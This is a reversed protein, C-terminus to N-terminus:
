MALKHRILLTGFAGIVFLGITTPEPIVEVKLNDYTATAGGASYNALALENFTFGSIVNSGSAIVTAGFATGDLSGTFLLNTGSRTVDIVWTKMTSSVSVSNDLTPAGILATASNFFNSTGSGVGPSTWTVKPDNTSGVSPVTIYYGSLPVNGAAADGTIASKAFGLGIRLAGGQAVASDTAVDVTLRLTKGDALVTETFDHYTATPQGNNKIKVQGGTFNVSYNTSALRNAWTGKGSDFNDQFVISASASLAGGVALSTLIIGLISKRM